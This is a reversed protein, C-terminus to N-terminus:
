FMESDADALAQIDKMAEDSKNDNILMEEGDLHALVGQLHAAKRRLNMSSKKPEYRGSPRKDGHKKQYAKQKEAEVYPANILETEDQKEGIDMETATADDSAGSEASFFSGVSGTGFQPEVPGTGTHGTADASSDLLGGDVDSVSFEKATNKKRTDFSKQARQLSLSDQPGEPNQPINPIGTGHLDGFTHDGMAWQIGTPSMTVPGMAGSAGSAGSEAGSAGAEAGSASTAGVLGSIMKLRLEGTDPDAALQFNGADGPNVMKKGYSHPMNQAGSFAVLSLLVLTPTLMSFCRSFSAM